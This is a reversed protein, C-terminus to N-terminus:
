RHDPPSAGSDSEGSARDGTGGAIRSSLRDLRRSEDLTLTQGFRSKIERLLTGAHPEAIASELGDLWPGAPGNLAAAQAIHNTWLLAIIRLRLPQAPDVGPPSQPLSDLAILALDPRKLALRTQALLLIGSFIAHPDDARLGPRPGHEILRSLIAERRNLDMDPRSAVLLLDAAGLAGVARRLGEERAEETPAPIHELATYGETTARSAVVAAVAYAYLAPEKNAAALEADVAEPQDTLADAAAARVAPNASALAGIVGRLDSGDGLLVRLRCNSLSASDASTRRMAALVRARDDPDPLGGAGLLALAADEAAAAPRGGANLWRLVADRARADPWRAVGRLLQEAAAADQEHELAAALRPGADAPALQVILAAARTRVGADRSDLLTQAASAVAGDIPKGASVERNVLDFALERLEPQAGLMLQAILRPRDEAPPGPLALYLRTFGDTLRESAAAHEAALRTARRWVGESLLDEWEQSGLRKHEELWRTWAALDSGLDDRGTSRIMAAIAAERLAKSSDPGAVRLLVQFAEKTRFAGIASIAAAAAPQDVGEALDVLPKYLRGPPDWCRAIASLLVLRSEAPTQPALLFAGVQRAVEARRAM